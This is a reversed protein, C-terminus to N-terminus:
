GTQTRIDLFYWVADNKVGECPKHVLLVLLGKPVALELGWAGGLGLTNQLYIGIYETFVTLTSSSLHFWNLM